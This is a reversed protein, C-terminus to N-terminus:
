EAELYSVVDDGAQRAAEELARNMNAELDKPRTGRSWKIFKTEGEKIFAMSKGDSRAIRRGEPGYIGTGEELWRAHKARNWVRVFARTVQSTWSDKFTGRRVPSMKKHIDVVDAATKYKAPNIITQIDRKLNTFKDGLSRLGEPITIKVTFM